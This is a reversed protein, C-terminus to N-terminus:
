LRRSDPDCADGPGRKWEVEPDTDDVADPGLLLEYAEVNDSAALLIVLIFEYPLNDGPPMDGPLAVSM